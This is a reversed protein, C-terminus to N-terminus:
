LNHHQGLLMDYDNLIAQDFMEDTVFSFDGQILNPLAQSTGSSMSSTPESVAAPSEALGTKRLVEVIGKTINVLLHRPHMVATVQKLIAVLAVLLQQVEQTDLRISTFRRTSVKLLFVIAFTIMTHFYIPLGNLYSQLETDSVVTRLISAASFVANNALEDVEMTEGSASRQSLDCPFGRLAHSGLYLKAFHYQLSAGKQPYNGVFVNADLRDAWEARLTDLAINFRRMQPIQTGSLPREVNAGFTDYINSCLSWRLVQSILRADDETAFECDLFKRASQVAQCERTIPPRGYPISFHHDCVYVLFYLRARLYHEHDGDLAKPISRQLQLDTSLRVLIGVFTWSLDSLWFAGICLARVDDITSRKAFSLEASFAFFERYLKDFDPSALYLAGVTCTALNVVSTTGNYGRTHIGYVFHDLLNRYTACYKEANELSVVGRGIMAQYRCEPPGGPATSLVYHGPLTGPSTELDVMITWDHPAIEPAPQEEFLSPNEISSVLQQPAPGRYPTSSSAGPQSISATSLAQELMAVRHEMDRKWVEDISRDLVCDLGRKKCRACPPQLDRMQCKIKQKRCSLCATGARGADLRLRSGEPHRTQRDELTENGATDNTGRLYQEM